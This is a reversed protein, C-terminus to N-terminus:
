AKPDLGAIVLVVVGHDAAADAEGLAALRMKMKTDVAGKKSGVAELLCGLADMDNWYNTHPHFPHAEDRSLFFSYNMVKKVAEETGGPVLDAIIQALADRVAAFRLDAHNPVWCNEGDHYVHVRSLVYAEKGPCLSKNVRCPKWRTTATPADPGAHPAAARLRELERQAAALEKELRERAEAETQARREAEERLKVEAKVKRASSGAGM